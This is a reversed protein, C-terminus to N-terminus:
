DLRLPLPQLLLFLLIRFQRSIAMTENVIACVCV